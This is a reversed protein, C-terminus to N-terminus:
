DDDAGEMGALRMYDRITMVQQQQQEPLPDGPRWELPPRNRNEQGDETKSWVVWNGIDVLQTLKHTNRDWGDHTAYYVASNPPSYM